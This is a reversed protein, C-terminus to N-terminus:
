GDLKLRLLTFFNSMLKKGLPVDIAFQFNHKKVAM